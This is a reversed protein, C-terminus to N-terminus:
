SSAHWNGRQQPIPNENHCAAPPCENWSESQWRTLRTLKAVDATPNGAAVGAAFCISCFPLVRSCSFSSKILVGVSVEPSVCTSVGLASVGRFMGQVCEELCWGWFALRRLVWWLLVCRWFGGLFLLLIILHVLLFCWCSATSDLGWFFFCTDQHSM